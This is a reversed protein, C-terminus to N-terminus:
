RKINTTEQLMEDVTQIVTANSSYARQTEILSTLEQAIEATSQELAFNIMEGTPGDGADWLFLSGSEASPSFAQNDLARLGNANPFDAIPIQYLTRVFGGGSTATVFGNEDVNVSSLSAVPAGNKSIGTPGFEASLQTMGTQGNIVGIEMDIPGGAVNFTFTGLAPDYVGNTTTPVAAISGGSARSDDFQVVFSAVPNAAADTNTDDITVTWENSSGAAPITPTFQINLSQSAGVNDFYEISLPIPDGSAGFQSAEAPLNVGLAVESTPSGALQNTLIRVPELGDASDRPFQPISGDSNAPWGLLVLGTNSTLVGDEDPRFSGTSVLQLPLDDDLNDIASSPVVPIFGRGGIALDTANNTTELSGRSDIERFSSARVGGAAYTGESESLVLSSFETDVRKYGTTQSNAINDAITGLKSANVNLGAVGANLSSSLTM